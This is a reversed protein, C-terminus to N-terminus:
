WMRFTGMFLYISLSVDELATMETQNQEFTVSLNKVEIQM